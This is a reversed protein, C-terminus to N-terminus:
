NETASNVCEEIFEAKQSAEESHLLRNSLLTVFGVMNSDLEKKGAAKEEAIRGLIEERVQLGQQKASALRAENKKEAEACAENIMERAQANSRVVEEEMLQQTYVLENEANEGLKLADSIKTRREDMYKLLPKFLLKSLLIYLIIFNIVTWILDPVTINLGVLNITM